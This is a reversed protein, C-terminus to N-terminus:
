YIGLLHEGLRDFASVGDWRIVEIIHFLQLSNDLRAHCCLTRNNELNGFARTVVCVNVQQAVHGAARTLISTFETKVDGNDQM